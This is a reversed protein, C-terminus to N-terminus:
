NKVPAFKELSDLMKQIGDTGGVKELMGMGQKVLPLINELKKGLANQQELLNKTTESMSDVSGSGLIQELNAITAKASEGGQLPGPEFDMPRLAQLEEIERKKEDTNTNEEADENTPQMGTSNPKGQSSAKSTLAERYDTGSNRPVSSSYLMGFGLAGGLIIIMNDTFFSVLLGTLVMFAAADGNDTALYGILLLTALGTMTWLIHKNGLLKRVRRDLRM